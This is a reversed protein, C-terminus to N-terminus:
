AREQPSPRREAPPSVPPALPTSPRTQRRMYVVFGFTIVAIGTFAALFGPVTYGLVIMALEYYVVMAIVYGYWLRNRQKKGLPM